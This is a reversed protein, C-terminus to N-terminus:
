LGQLHYLAWQERRVFEFRKWLAIKDYHFCTHMRHPYVELQKEFPANFEVIFVWIGYWVLAVSLDPIGVLLFNLVADEFFIRRLPFLFRRRRAVSVAATLHLLGAGIVLLLSPLGM